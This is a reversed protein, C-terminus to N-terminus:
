PQTTPSKMETHPPQVERSAPEFGFEQGGVAAEIMLGGTPRVFVVVGNRYAASTAAGEKVAIVSADAAFKLKGYKLDELAKPTQFVILEDMSQGGAIAGVQIKTIDAYGVFDGQQYVEGRGYTAGVGFGGKGIDPFIAYAYANSVFAHLGPDEAEMRSLSARAGEHLSQKGGETNPAVACGTLGGTAALLGLAAALSLFSRGFTM